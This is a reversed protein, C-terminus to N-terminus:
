EQDNFIPKLIENISSDSKVLMKDASKEKYNEFSKTMSSTIFIYFKCGLNNILLISRLSPKSVKSVM